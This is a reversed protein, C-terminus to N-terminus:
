NAFERILAALSPEDYAVFKQKLVGNKDVEVLTTQLTVGYKQRLKQSSDYDAKFIVMGDPIQGTQISKELARCQPCWPAHFFLIRKNDAVSAFNAESYNVYKGAIPAPTQSDPDPAEPPTKVSQSTNTNNQNDAVPKPQLALYLFAAVIIVVIGFIVALLTHNKM